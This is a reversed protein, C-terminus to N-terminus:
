DSRKAEDWEFPHWELSKEIGLLRLMDAAQTRHHISHELMQALAVSYPIRDLPDIEGIDEDTWNLIDTLAHSGQCVVIAQHLERDVSEFLELIEKASYTRTNKEPRPRPPRRNLRDAFFIMASVLHLVTRELNGHGLGLPKEFQEPTLQCCAELLRRNAWGDYDFLVDLLPNNM